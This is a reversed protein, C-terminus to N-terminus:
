PTNHSSWTTADKSTGGYSLTYTGYGAGTAGPARFVELGWHNAEYIPVGFRSFDYTCDSQRINAYSRGAWVQGSCAGSPLSVATGDFSGLYSYMDFSMQSPNCTVCHTVPNEVCDVGPRVETFYPSSWAQIEWDPFAPSINLSLNGASGQTQIFYGCCHGAGLHFDETPQSDKPTLTGTFNSAPCSQASASGGYLFSLGAVLVGALRHATM